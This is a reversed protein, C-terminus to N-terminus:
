TNLTEVTIMYYLIDWLVKGTQSVKENDKDAKRFANTTIREIEKPHLKIQSKCM